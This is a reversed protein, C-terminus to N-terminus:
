IFFKTECGITFASTTSPQIFGGVQWLITGTGFANNNGFNVAGGGDIQFGGTFTNNGNFATTGGGTKQIPGTGNIPINVTTTAVNVSSNFQATWACVASPLSLSGTGNITINYLAPNLTGNFIGACSINATNVNIIFTGNLTSGGADACFCAANGAPWAVLSASAIQTSNPSWQKTATDWTGNGGVSGTGNPDWYSVGAGAHNALLSFVLGLVAPIFRLPKCTLNKM